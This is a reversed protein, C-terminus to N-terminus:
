DDCPRIESKQKVSFTACAAYHRGQMYTFNTASARQMASYWYQCTKRKPEEGQGGVFSLCFDNTWNLTERQEDVVSRTAIIGNAYV